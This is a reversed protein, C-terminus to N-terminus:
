AERVIPELLRLSVSACIWGWLAGAILDSHYHWEGALLFFTIVALCALYLSQWAPYFRELVTIAAVALASHGSPFSSSAADVTRFFAFVQDSGDRANPLPRAFIAKLIFDNTGIASIASYIAVTLVKRLKTSEPSHLSVLAAIAIATALIFGSGIVVQHFANHDVHLSVFEFLPADLFCISLISAAIALGAIILGKASFLEVASKPGTRDPRNSAM